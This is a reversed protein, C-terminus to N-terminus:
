KKKTKLAKQVKKDLASIQKELEKNADIVDALKLEAMDDDILQYFEEIDKWSAGQKNLKPELATILVGEIENLLLSGRAKFLKQANDYGSLSGNTNVRRFGFWSFYEWRNWLHDTEHHNLRSYLARKGSGAQGIYIPFLDKDYLIYIGIQERFDAERKNTVYGKLHGRVGGRGWNIYKREWLHGFNRILM